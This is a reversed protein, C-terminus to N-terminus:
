RNHRQRAHHAGHRSAFHRSSGARGDEPANLMRRVELEVLALGENTLRLHRVSQKPVYIELLRVGRRRLSMPPYMGTKADITIEADGWRAVFDYGSLDEDVTAHRVSILEPMDRLAAHLALETVAGVVESVAWTKVGFSARFLWDIVEREEVVDAYKEIFGRLLHNYTCAMRRLMEYNHGVEVREEHNLGGQHLRDKDDDLHRQAVAQRRADAVIESLRRLEVDSEGDVYQEWVLTLGESVGHETRGRELASIIEEVRNVIQARELMNESM